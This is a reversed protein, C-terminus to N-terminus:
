IEDLEVGLEKALFPAASYGEICFNHSLCGSKKCSGLLTRHLILHGGEPHQYGHVVKGNVILGVGVGTGITIYALSSIDRFGGIKYYGLASSNVDTEIKIIKKPYIGELLRIVNINSWSGKKDASKNCIM